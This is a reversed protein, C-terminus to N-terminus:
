ARANANNHCNRVTKSSAHFATVTSSRPRNRPHSRVPSEGANSEISRRCARNPSPVIASRKCATSSRL